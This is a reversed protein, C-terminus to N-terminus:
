RLIMIGESVKLFFFFYFYFASFIVMYLREIKEIVASFRQSPPADKM